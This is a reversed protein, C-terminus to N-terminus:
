PLDAHLEVSSSSDSTGQDNGESAIRQEPKKFECTLKNLQEIGAALLLKSGCPLLATKSHMVMHLFM